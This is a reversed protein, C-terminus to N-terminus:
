ETRKKGIFFLACVGPGVHTGIAAALPNVIANKINYRKKVESLVFLAEEECDGHCIAITDLDKQDCYQEMEEVLGLLSAQRGRIKGHNILKGEIDVHLRPKMSLVTGVLAKARSVRGGRFLFMLDDVTFRHHVTLMNDAVWLCLQEFTDGEDRRKVAENVLLGLGLSVASTQPIFIKRDPYKELLQSKAICASGHSGSLGSTLGLYIIDKGDKLYPEFAETFQFESYQSTKFVVGDRMKQYFTKSDMSGDDVYVENEGMSVHMPIFQLDNEKYYSWPLDASSDTFLIYSM